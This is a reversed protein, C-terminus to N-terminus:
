SPPIQRIRAIAAVCRYFADLLPMPVNLSQAKRVAYGVTEHIELTRGAEIDQLASMRHQPATELYKRGAARVLDVAQSETLSAMTKVPIMSRDSIDIGLAAALATMEAVMRVLLAASDPDDLFKWSEARTVVSLVILGTWAVFKSWELSVIDSAASCRVGATDIDRAISECRASTGGTLEGILLAVNRTFLVSGDPRLEGSTDALAGLTRERGFAAALLDNKQVGNQISFVTDIQVHRLTMVTEETGPTKTAIILTRASKLQSPDDAVTVQAAFDALGEIRLGQRQLHRARAGRALMAVQHGARALHAGIISGIAGAGVIAYDAHISTQGLKVEEGTEEGVGGCIRGQNESRLRFIASGEGV